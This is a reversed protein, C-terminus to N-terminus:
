SVEWGASVGCEAHVVGSLVFSEDKPDFMEAARGMEIDLVTVNEGCVACQYKSRERM